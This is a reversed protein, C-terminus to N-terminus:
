VEKPFETLEFLPVGLAEMETMALHYGAKDNSRLALRAKMALDEIRTLMELADTKKM